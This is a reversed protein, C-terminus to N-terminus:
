RWQNIKTSPLHQGVRDALVRSDLKNKIGSNGVMEAYDNMAEYFRLEYRQWDENEAIKHDSLSRHM